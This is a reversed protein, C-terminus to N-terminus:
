FLHFIAGILALICALIGVSVFIFTTIKERRYEAPSFPAYAELPLTRFRAIVRVLLLLEFALALIYWGIWHSIREPIFFWGKSFSYVFVGLFFASVGMLIDTHVLSPIESLPARHNEQVSEEKQSREQKM